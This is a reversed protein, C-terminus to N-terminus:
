PNPRRPRYELQVDGPKKWIFARVTALTTQLALVEENCLIEIDDETFQMSEQKPEPPAPDESSKKSGSALSDQRRFSFRSLSGVFSGSGEGKHSPSTAESSGQTAMDKQANLKNVVYAVMKKVRLVPLAHLRQGSASTVQPLGCGTVPSLYFSYKQPPPALLNNRLVCDLCWVPIVSEGETGDMQEPKVWDWGQRGQTIFTPLERPFPVFASMEKKEKVGSTAESGPEEGSLEDPPQSSNVSNKTSDSDRAAKSRPGPNRENRRRLWISLLGQLVQAGLNCKEEEDGQPDLDAAYVEAAFCQPPEM